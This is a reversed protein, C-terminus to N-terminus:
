RKFERPILDILEQEEAWTLVWSVPVATMSETEFLLRMEQHGWDQRAQAVKEEWWPTTGLVSYGNAHQKQHCPVCLPIASYPPKVSTGAGDGVKRYHAAQITGPNGCCWCVPQARCWQLFEADHGLVELVRTAHFWGCRYLAQMLKGSGPEGTDDDPVNSSVDQSLGGSTRDAPTGPIGDKLAALVVVRGVQCLLSLAEGTDGQHVDVQLRLTGDALSSFKTVNGQIATM